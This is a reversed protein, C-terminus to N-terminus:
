VPVGPLPLVISLARGIAGWIVGVVANWAKEIAVVAQAVLARVFNEASAQLNDLFTQFLADNGQLSGTARSQAIMEAQTALLTTQQTAFTSVTAWSQALSGQLAAIVDTITQDLDFAM